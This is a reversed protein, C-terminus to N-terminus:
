EDEMTVIATDQSMESIFRSIPRFERNKEYGNCEAGGDATKTDANFQIRWRRLTLPLSRSCKTMTLHEANLRRRPNTDTPPHTPPHNCSHGTSTINTDNPVCQKSEAYSDASLKYFSLCMVCFVSHENLRIGHFFPITRLAPLDM